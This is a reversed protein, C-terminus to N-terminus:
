YEIIQFTIKITYLYFSNQEEKEEYINYEKSMIKIIKQSNGLENGILFLNTSYLYKM